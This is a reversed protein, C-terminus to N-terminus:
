QEVEILLRFGIKPSYTKCRTVQQIEAEKKTMWNGGFALNEEETWESVNGYLHFITPASDHYFNVPWTLFTAVYEDSNLYDLYDQNEFDKQSINYIDVGMEKERELVDKRIAPKNFALRENAILVSSYKKYLMKYENLKPLRVKMQSPRSNIEAEYKGLFWDCYGRAGKQKVNVVPHNRYKHIVSYFNKYAVHYSKQFEEGEIWGENYIQNNQTEGFDSLFEQYQENSVEYKSIFLGKKLQVFDHNGIILKDTEDIIGNGFFYFVVSLIFAKM